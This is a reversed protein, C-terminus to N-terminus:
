GICTLNQYSSNIYIYMEVETEEESGELLWRSTEYVFKYYFAEKKQSM